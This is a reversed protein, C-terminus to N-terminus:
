TVVLVLKKLRLTITQVQLEALILIMLQLVVQRYQAQYRQLFRVILKLKHISKKNLM